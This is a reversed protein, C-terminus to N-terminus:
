PIFVSPLTGIISAYSFGTGAVQTPLLENLYILFVQFELAVAFRLVLVVCVELLAGVKWCDHECLSHGNLFVLAFSCLLAGAFMAVALQRRPIRAIFFYTLVYTALESINILVGNLYFDFGFESILMVPAYYLFDVCFAVVGVCVSM